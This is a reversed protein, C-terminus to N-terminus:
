IPSIDMNKVDHHKGRLLLINFVGNLDDVAIYEVTSPVISDASAVDESSPSIAILCLSDVCLNM